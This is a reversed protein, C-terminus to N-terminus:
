GSLINTIEIFNSEPIFQGNSIETGPGDDRVLRSRENMKSCVHDNPSSWRGPGRRGTRSDCVPLTDEESWCGSCDGVIYSYIVKLKEIICSVAPAM